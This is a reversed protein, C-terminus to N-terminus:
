VSLSRLLDHDIKEIVEVDVVRGDSVALTLRGFRRKKLRALVDLLFMAERDSVGHPLSVASRLRDGAAAEVTRDGIRPPAFYRAGWSALIGGWSLYTLSLAVV